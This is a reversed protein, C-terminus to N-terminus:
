FLPEAHGFFADLAAEGGYEGSVHNSIAAQHLLILGTRQSSELNPALIHQFWEYSLVLTADEREADVAHEDLEGAGDVGHLEGNIKLSRHSGAVAILSFVPVDHQAHADIETINYTLSARYRGCSKSTCSGGRGPQWRTTTSLSTTNIAVTAENDINEYVQKLCRSLTTSRLV